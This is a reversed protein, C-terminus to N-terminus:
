RIFVKTWYYYRTYETETMLVPVKEEKEKAKEIAKNTDRMYKEYDFGKNVSSTKIKEKIEDIKEIAPYNKAFWNRGASFGKERSKGKKDVTKEKCIEEYKSIAKEDNKLYERIYKDDLRNISEKKMEDFVVTYGFKQFREVEEMEEATLKTIDAKVTRKGSDVVYHKIKKAM